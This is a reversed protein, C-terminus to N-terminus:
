LEKHSVRPVDNLLYDIEATAADDYGIGNVQANGTSAGALM